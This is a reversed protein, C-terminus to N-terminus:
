GYARATVTQEGLKDIGLRLTDGPRLFRPPTLGLGVGSPTGTLIVDGTRLRMFRSMYAVVFAAGFIMDSTDSDQVREGNVELWLALSQPDGVEDPTVLWPGLPAFGPGSKGKVWTGGRELQWARESVDNALCFGAVHALADAEDVGDCPAGIVIGLEVEWDTKESDKPITLPDYPGAIASTAKNFVVPETPPEAGMEAAHKRYNMGICWLNPADAVCAGIRAGDPAPPLAEVDVARVAEIAALSVGEGAFDAVHASLDRIRGEGDLVGPKEDGPPGFRLLRM